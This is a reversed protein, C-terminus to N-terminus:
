FSLPSNSKQVFVTQLLNSGWAQHAMDSKTDTIKARQGNGVVSAAGPQFFIALCDAIRGSTLM